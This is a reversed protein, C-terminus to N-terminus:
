GLYSQSFPGRQEKSHEGRPCGARSKSRRSESYGGLWVLCAGLVTPRIAHVASRELHRGLSEDKLFEDEGRRAGEVASDVLKRGYDVKSKSWELINM